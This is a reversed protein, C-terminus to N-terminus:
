TSNLITKKITRMMDEYYELPAKPHFGGAIHVETAGMQKAIGVRQEIEQPTLTYADDAGDKRYFACMQRAAACVNTYNMYYSAAFTVTDGVLKKRANDAVAGLLHLNDFNMLELFGDNYSLSREPLRM